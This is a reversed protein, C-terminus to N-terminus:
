NGRQRAGVRQHRAAPERHRDSQGGAGGGAACRSRRSSPRRSVRGPAWSGVPRGVGPTGHCMHEGSHRGDRGGKGRALADPLEQRTWASIHAPDLRPALREAVWASTLMRRRRRRVIVCGRPRHPPRETGGRVHARMPLGRPVGPIPRRRGTGRSSASGDSVQVYPRTTLGRDAPRAIEPRCRAPRSRRM